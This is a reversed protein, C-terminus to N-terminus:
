AAANGENRTARTMPRLAVFGLIYIIGASLLSVTFGVEMSALICAISGLTTTFANIGWAWPIILDGLSQAFRIGTPFPMGMVTALPALALIAVLCRAEHPLFMLKPLAFNVFLTEGAIAGVLVIFIVTLKHSISGGIRQALLSGLGSFVLIAFLTIAMSYIPGGVFVAYKQLLTIEVVIFGLGLAGFYALLRGKHEVQRLLSRQPLLPVIISIGALIVIQVLSVLMVLLGLPLQNIPVGGSSKMKSLLSRWRYYQFFFPNDDTIASIDYPYKEIFTARESHPARILWNFANDSRAYPDYLMDFKMSKAWRRYVAVEDPTFPTKKLLIEAWPAFPTPGSIIIMHRDPREIGMRHLAELEVSVLRLNERPPVFLFRSFSLIGGPSLHDWYDQMAEVSYLYNEALAYAGMSLASYTDVGSLQIVDFQKDTTTLYHRGEANILEVDPRDFIRGAFDAFENKVADVTVPNVEVGVVHRAGYALSILVDIGGGVGIVLAQEADPKVIYPAGQLIYGLIPVKSLDGDPVNVIGTPAHGDQYIVQVPTIKGGYAPSLAGGGIFISQEPPFIDIRSVIHWRSYHPELATRFIKQPPFYVPFIEHRSAIATMVVSLCLVAATGARLSRRTGKTLLLTASLGGAAAAAYITAEAGLYNIGVISLMTGAGAGLLDAFYLRNIEEGARSIMYGICVGALFFPAGILVCLMLLSFINSYDGHFYIDM